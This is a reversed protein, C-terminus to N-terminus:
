SDIICPIAVDEYVVHWGIKNEFLYMKHQISEEPHNGPTQLKFALM